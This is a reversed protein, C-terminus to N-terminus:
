FIRDLWAFIYDFMPDRVGKRSLALDHLGNEVTVETIENGLVRGYRSIDTIDLVADSSRSEAVPEDTNYSRESHLLLIPVTIHGDKRLRRQAVTIARIWGADVDPSQEMKWDTNYNWEGGDKKLLSESYIQSPSQSIELDPVIKGAATVIPIAWKELAPSLNWDLFPSNLILCKIAPDSSTNMYYATTLGGTSHGMLVISDIGNVKMVSIASDIDAFYESLDRAQFPTQGKMLSRGYKRLDVAYFSYCSDVFRDAMETQFFYDNFGHVYLVGRKAGASVKRIITSRVQGSYDDAQRVYRMEFGDGLTDRQWGTSFPEDSGATAKHRGCSSYTLMIMMTAIILAFKKM